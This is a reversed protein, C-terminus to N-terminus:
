GLNADLDVDPTELGSTDTDISELASDVAETDSAGSVQQGGTTGTGSGASDQGVCGAVLLAGILAFALYKM